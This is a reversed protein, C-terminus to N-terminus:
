SPHGEAFMMPGARANRSPMRAHAYEVIQPVIVALKEPRVVMAEAHLPVPVVGAPSERILARAIPTLLARFLERPSLAPM